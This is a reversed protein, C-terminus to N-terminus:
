YLLGMQHQEFSQHRPNLQYQNFIVNKMYINKSNYLKWNGDLIYGNMKLCLRIRSNSNITKIVRYDGGLAGFDYYQIILEYKQNDNKLIRYDEYGNNTSSDFTFLYISFLLFGIIGFAIYVIKFENNDSAKIFLKFSIVLTFIIKTTYLFIDINRDQIDLFTNSFLILLIYLLSFTKFKSLKITMSDM